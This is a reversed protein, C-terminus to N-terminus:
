GKGMKMMTNALVNRMFENQMQSTPAPGRMGELLHLLAPGENVNSMPDFGPSQVFNPNIGPGSPASQQQQPPTVAPPTQAGDTLAGQQAYQPPTPTQTGGYAGGFVDPTGGTGDYQGPVPMSPQSPTTGQKALSGMSGGWVPSPPQASNATGV